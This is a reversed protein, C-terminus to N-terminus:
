FTTYHKTRASRFCLARRLWVQRSEDAKRVEKSDLCGFSWHRQQKWSGPKKFSDIRDTMTKEKKNKTKKVIAM